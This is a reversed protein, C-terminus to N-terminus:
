KTLRFFQQGASAPIVYPSIAAPLNTWSNNLLQGSVQLTGADWTLAAQRGPVPNIALMGLPLPPVVAEVSNTFSITSGDSAATNLPVFSPNMGQFLFTIANTPFVPTNDSAFTAARSFKFEFNTGPAAPLSLWNLGNIAGENFGGNKEQYSFGSQILLESGIASYGTNPDKDTNFFMNVYAPFQGASPPIDHWLTVRFYYNNADSYMYIDKFDAAGDTGSPGSYIPAVGTWDSMDGDITITPSFTVTTHTVNGYLDMVGNIALTHVSGLTLGTNLALTVTQGNLVANTITAGGNVAYNAPNTASAPDVSDSFTVIIQFPNASVSTISPPITDRLVTLSATRSNTSDVPNSVSVSYGGANTLSVSAISYSANTADQIPTAGFYWQYQVPASGSAVVNFTVPKGQVVYQDAPQTPNTIVVPTGTVVLQAARTTNTSTSNTVVLSYSGADANVVLPITFSANTAGAINTGNKLWQYGLPGSGIVDSTFTVPQGSVVSADAPLNTDEILVPFQAAATLSLGFVMDSTSAPAQHTEVELINDGAILPGSAIGFVDAHGVPSNTASASTAYTVAGAPMRVRKVEAGNLYYVAGDSLYNTVVFAINAPDNNWNFHTRFYYTNPTSSLPTQITPYAGPSSTYGFLGLGAAWPAQSDDYAQDLWNTGLDTGAANARWSSSALGVLPLNTTLPAPPLEFTYALGGGSPPYWETPVFGSTESELTFTISGSAFVATSDNAYTAHRSVRFEFETGADAPAALWDLGNIGGENFGGNKEQYGGGGQILMESGTGHASYGTAVNNDANIFCNQLYTFVNTPSGYITFRVYLYDDDNAVYIDKYAVVNTVDQAQTYALPVGAWDGFSGDITIHKFTGAFAGSAFVSLCAILIAALYNKEKKM